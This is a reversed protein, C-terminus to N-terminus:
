RALRPQAQLQRYADVVDTSLIPDDFRQVVLGDDILVVVPLAKVGYKDALGPEDFVNVAMAHEDDGLGRELQPRLAYCRGCIPSWFDVLHPGTENALKADLESQTVDIM